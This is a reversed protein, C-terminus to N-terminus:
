KADNIRWSNEKFDHGCNNVWSYHNLVIDALNNSSFFARNVAENYEYEMMWGIINAHHYYLWAGKDDYPFMQIRRADCRQDTRFDIIIKNLEKNLKDVAAAVEEPSAGPNVVTGIIQPSFREISILTNHNLQDVVDGWEDSEYVHFDNQPYYVLLVVSNYCKGDRRIDMSRIPEKISKWKFKIDTTLVYDAPPENVTKISIEDDVIFSMKPEHYQMFSIIRNHGFLMGPDPMQGGQYRVYYDCGNKVEICGNVSNGCVFSIRKCCCLQKFATKVDDTIKM